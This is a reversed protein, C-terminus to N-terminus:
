SDSKSRKWILILGSDNQRIKQSERNVFETQNLSIGNHIGNKSIPLFLLMRARAFITGDDNRHAYGPSRKKEKEKQKKQARDCRLNINARVM